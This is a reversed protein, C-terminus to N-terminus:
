KASRRALEAVTIDRCVVAFSVSASWTTATDIFYQWYDREAELQASTQFRPPINPRIALSPPLAPEKM